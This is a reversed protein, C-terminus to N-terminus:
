LSVQDAIYKGNITDQKIAAISFRRTDEICCAKRVAATLASPILDDRDRGYRWDEARLVVEVYPVGFQKAITLFPFNESM